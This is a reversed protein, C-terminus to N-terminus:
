LWAVASAAHLYAVGWYEQTNWATATGEEVYPSDDERGIFGALLAEPIQPIRFSYGVPQRYGIGTFLSRNRTNHGATWQLLREAHRKWADRDMLSGAKALAHAHSMLVGGLGLVLGYRNFPPMFTRIWRGDGAARFLQKDLREPHLFIGYPTLGFPNGAADALLYGEMYLNISDEL